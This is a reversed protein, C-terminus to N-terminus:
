AAIARQRDWLNKPRWPFRLRPFNARFRRKLRGDDMDLLRYYFRIRMEGGLGTGEAERVRSAMLRKNLM